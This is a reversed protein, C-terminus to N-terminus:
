VPGNWAPKKATWTPGPCVLSGGGSHDCPHAPNRNVPVMKGSAQSRIVWLGRFETFSSYWAPRSSFLQHVVMLLIPPAPHSRVEPNAPLFLAILLRGRNRTQATLVFDVEEHNEPDILGARVKGMKAPVEADRLNLAATTTGFV